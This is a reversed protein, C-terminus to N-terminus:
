DHPTTGVTIAGDPLGRRRPLVIGLIVLTAGVLVLAGAIIAGGTVAQAEHMLVVDAGLDVSGLPENGAVVLTIPRSAPVDLEARRGQAATLWVQQASLEQVTVPGSTGPVDVTAWGQAGRRAVVYTRGQLLSDADRTGAIGAFLPQAATSVVLNTQGLWDLYPLAASFRDIDIVVTRASGAKVTGLSLHMRGDSDFASHVVLAGGGIVLGVVLVLGGVVSLIVKRTM